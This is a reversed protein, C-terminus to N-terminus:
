NGLVKEYIKLIEQYHREPDNRKAAQERAAKGVEELLAEDYYIEKIKDIFDTANGRRALFGTQWNEIMEPIGGSDSALVAKGAAQAELVALPYNEYWISPVIVLRARAILEHM